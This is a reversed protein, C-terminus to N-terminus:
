APQGRGYYATPRNTPFSIREPSPGRPENNPARRKASPARDDLRAGLGSDRTGEKSRSPRPKYTRDIRTECRRMAAGNSARSSRAPQASSSQSEPDAGAVTVGTGVAVGIGSVDASTKAGPGYPAPTVVSASSSVERGVM